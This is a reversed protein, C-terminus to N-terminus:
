GPGSKPAASAAKAAPAAAKAAAHTAAKAATPAAAKAATPASAKAATPAAAKEQAFSVAVVALSVLLVAAVGVRYMKMRARGTPESPPNGEAVIRDLRGSPRPARLFAPAAIADSAAGRKAIM